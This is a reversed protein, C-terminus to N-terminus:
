KICYDNLFFNSEIGCIEEIPIQTKDHMIVTHAYPDVKKVHGIKQVYKGGAKKTDPRFYSIKVEIQPGHHNLLLFLKRNLTSKQSEDLERYEETM